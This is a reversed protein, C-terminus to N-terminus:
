VMGQESESIVSENIIFCRVGRQSKRGPFVSYEESANTKSTQSPQGDGPLSLQSNSAFWSEVHLYVLTKESGIYSDGGWKKRDRLLVCM